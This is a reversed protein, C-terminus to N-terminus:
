KKVPFKEGCRPCQIEGLKQFARVRNALKLLPGRRCKPCAATATLTVPNNAHVPQKKDSM